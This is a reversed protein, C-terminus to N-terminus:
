NFYPDIHIGDEDKYLYIEFPNVNETQEYQSAFEYYDDYTELSEDYGAGFMVDGSLDYVNYTGFVPEAGIEGQEFDPIILVGSVNAKITDDSVVEIDQVRYNYFEMPFYGSGRAPILFFGDETVFGEKGFYEAPTVKGKGYLKDLVDAVDSEYYQEFLDIWQSVYPDNDIKEQDNDSFTCSRNTNLLPIYEERYADSNEQYLVKHLPQLVFHFAEHSSQGLGYEEMYADGNAHFLYEYDFYAHSVYDNLFLSVEAILQEENNEGVPAEEYDEKTKDSGGNQLSSASIPITNEVFRFMAPYYEMLSLLQEDISNIASGTPVGDEKMEKSSVTEFSCRVCKLYLETAGICAEADELRHWEMTDHLYDKFYDQCEKLMTINRVASVKRDSDFIGNILYRNIKVFLKQIKTFTLAKALSSATNSLMTESINEGLSGWFSGDLKITKYYDEVVNQGAQIFYDRQSFDGLSDDDRITTPNTLVEKLAAVSGADIQLVSFYYAGTSLIDTLSFLEIESTLGLRLSNDQIQSIKEIDKHFLIDALDAKSINETFKIGKGLENLDNIGSIIKWSNNTELLEDWFMSIDEIKKRKEYLFDIGATLIEAADGYHENFEKLKKLLNEEDYEPRKLLKCIVEKYDDVQAKGWLKDVRGKTITDYVEGTWYLAKSLAPMDRLLDANFRDSEIIENIKVYLDDLHQLTSSFYLIRDGNDLLYLKGQDALAELPYYEQDEYKIPKISQLSALYSFESGNLRLADREKKYSLGLLSSFEDLSIYCRDEIELLEIQVSRGTFIDQASVHFLSGEEKASISVTPIIFLVALFWATLRIAKNKM